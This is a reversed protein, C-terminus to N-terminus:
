WRDIDIQLTPLSSKTNRASSDVLTRYGNNILKQWGAPTLTLQWSYRGGRTSVPRADLWGRDVCEWVSNSFSGNPTYGISRAVSYISTRKGTSERYDVNDLIALQKEGAKRRKCYM